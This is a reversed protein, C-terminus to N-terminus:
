TILATSSVEYKSTSDYEPLVTWVDEVQIDVYRVAHSKKVEDDTVGTRSFWDELDRFYRGLTRPSSEDFTPAARDGPLPMYAASAM